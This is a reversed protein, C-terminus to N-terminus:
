YDDYGEQQEEEDDDFDFAQLAKMLSENAKQKKLMHVNEGIKLYDNLMNDLNGVSYKNGKIDATVIM